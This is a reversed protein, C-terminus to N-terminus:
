NRPNYRMGCKSFRLLVVLATDSNADTLPPDQREFMSRIRDLLANLPSRPPGLDYHDRAYCGDDRIPDRVNPNAGRRLLSLAAGPQDRKIATILDRDLREQLIPRLASYIMTSAAIAIGASVMAKYRRRQKNSRAAMPPKGLNDAM